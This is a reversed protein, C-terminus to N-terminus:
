NTERKKKFYDYTNRVKCGMYAMYEEFTWDDSLGFSYILCSASKVDNYLTDMCIKKAGDMQPWNECGGRSDCMKKWYESPQPWQGGISKQVTCKFAESHSFVKKSRHTYRM